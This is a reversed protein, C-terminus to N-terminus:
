PEPLHNSFHVIVRDGRRARILPGPLGGNYTWADTRTGPVIEVSSVGAALSIEVIRPDPNVDPAAALTLGADWGAPQLTQAIAAAAGAATILAVFLTLRLSKMMLLEIRMTGPSCSACTIRGSSLTLNPHM